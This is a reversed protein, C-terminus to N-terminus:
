AGAGSRRRPASAPADLLAELAAGARVAETEIQALAAPADSLDCAAAAHELRRAADTLRRAGFNSISGALTHAVMRVQEVDGAVVAAGLSQVRQPLDELVAAVVEDIDGLADRLGDIVAPDLAPEDAPPEVPPLDAAAGAGLQGPAKGDAQWWHALAECLAPMRVPKSLYDDMGAALCREREAPIAHATLAVVIQHRDPGERARLERTATLGDMEPMECDMLVVDFREPGELRKLAERGNDALEVTCGIRELLRSIVEQNVANDEVALVRCGVFPAAEPAAPARPPDGVTAGGCLRLMADLVQQRRLPKLLRIAGGALAGADANDDLSTQLIVKATALAPEARLDALVALGDIDPMMRDLLLLAYPEGSAAAERCCALARAGGEAEDARMGWAACLSHLYTRNTANDDVVLVRMGALVEMGTNIWPATAPDDHCPLGLEFRFQSGRGPASEVGLAGGMMAVIQRSIALGLGTGGFRRTTSGDAQAFADFIHRQADPDIGIGTDRVCFRVRAAAADRWELVAQLCVEGRETFKIANGLLNVLVQRLRTPDGSVRNPVDTGVYCILELGKEAAKGALMQATEEVLDPLAFVTEELELRGADIKSFDLVDGIVALLTEASTGALEVFHRQERELRGARLLDLMGLVGNLPTRIEHSMSALFQSKARASAMAEDRARELEAAQDAMVTVDQVLVMPEGSHVAMRYIQFAREGGDACALRRPMAAQEADLAPDFAGLGGCDAAFGAMIDNFAVWGDDSASMVGIGLTETAAYLVDLEKAQRKARLTRMISGIRMLFINIPDDKWILDIAGAHLADEIVEKRQSHMVLTMDRTRPDRTLARCLEDGNGGPMFFDIVALEPQERRAIALAEDMSGAVLVEYGNAALLDRYKARVTPSDDVFLISGGLQERTGLLQRSRWDGLGGMETYTTLFKRMRYPLLTLDEKLQIDNNPRASALAYAREDPSETFIMVALSDFAREAGIRELLEAGGMGPLLWDLLLGDFPAKAAIAERLLREGAEASTAHACGIGVGALARACVAAMTPSDEIILVKFGTQGMVQGEHLDVM